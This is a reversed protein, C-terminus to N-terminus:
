FPRSLQLEFRYTSRKIREWASQFRSKKAPSFGELYREPHTKEFRHDAEAIELMDLLFPRQDTVVSVKGDPALSLHCADLFEPTFIRHKRRSAAYNPDPFNMHVESWTRPAMLPYLLRIDAKIFRINDLGIKEAQNVAHYVARRSIEVGICRAEPHTQVYDLLFEGTGCGIELVMLGAQDFLTQSTLNPYNNRAHYLTRNDWELLYKVAAEPSPPVLKIRAIRRGRSM